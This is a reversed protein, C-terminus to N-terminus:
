VFAGKPYNIPRNFNNQDLKSDITMALYRFADAAHSTWDHLPTPKFNKLKEDFESRYLRMAEIGRECKLKDFWCRPILMRVSNIGDEVRHMPAISVNRLGLSEMVELRSKGTGLEKAKADHPVIHGGYNYPRNQIERVYHGLDAGSAEYYDIIHVERGVTQAWWIATADRIGLDWATWVQAAPDHPVGSIRGATDADNMLRGYYAGVIAADFSCEFEQAYQDETLDRAALELEDQVILGTESARLMLSFWNKEKKSREWITYFENRGKPTGIFVAWGQRDALAPRIVESWVRPDMDAFEDLVVGDLYIGRLADANDAGYLRVQGGNHYDVRLESENIQAGLDRLPLMGSRM